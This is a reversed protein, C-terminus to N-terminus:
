FSCFQSVTFLTSFIFYIKAKPHGNSIQYCTKKEDKLNHLDIPRYKFPRRM